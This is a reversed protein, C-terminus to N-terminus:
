SFAETHIRRRPVGLRRASRTVTATFSPPGCVFVDRSSLDPVLRHISTPDLPHDRRPGALEIFRGGRDEVFESWEHRFLVEDSRRARLVVVPDVPRPLDELLARLPTAGVGAGFLAVGHATVAHRTFVGYPGEIAVRTGPRIRAAALSHVGKGKITVRLRTPTPMASLSYPHAHWWLGPTLFRGLVHQGGSARLRDLRHGSCIISVTDPGEAVVAVVRLRHYLSRWVPVGIRFALVCGVAAAWITVWWARTVPHGVFSQGNALQHSFSLAVALYTYLHIVWWTEHQLRRRVARYSTIGAALLLALGVTAALVDPYSGLFEAFQRFAGIHDSEAYGLTICVAHTTLLLLPWPGLWRHWRVLREQGIVREIWPIRAILVLMVLLLYTGVLGTLEGTFTLRGGPAHLAGASESSVALGVTLALGAGLAAAIVGPVTRGPRRPLSHPVPPRHEV